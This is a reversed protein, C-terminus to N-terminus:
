HPINGNVMHKFYYWVAYGVWTISGLVGWKIVHLRMAEWFKAMNEEKLRKSRVWAHDERHDSRSIDRRSELENVVGIVFAEIEQQNM